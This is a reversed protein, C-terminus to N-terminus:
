DAIAMPIIRIESKDLSDEKVINKVKARCIPCSMKWEAACGLCLCMHYCEVMVMAITNDMCVVCTEGNELASKTFHLDYIGDENKETLNGILGINKYYEDGSPLLKARKKILVSFAHISLLETDNYRSQLYYNLRMADSLDPKKTQDFFVAGRLFGRIPLERIRKLPYENVAEVFDRDSIDMKHKAFKLQLTPEDDDDEESERKNKNRDRSRSRSRSRSQHSCSVGKSRRYRKRKPKTSTSGFFCGTTNNPENCGTIPGQSAGWSFGNCANVTSHNAPTSGWSFTSDNNSGWSFASGTGFGGTSAGTFGWSFKSVPKDEQVPVFYIIMDTEASKGTRENIRGEETSTDFREIGWDCEKKNKAFKLQTRRGQEIINATSGESTTIICLCKGNKYKRSPYLYVEMGYASGMDAESMLACGVSFMMGGASYKDNKNQKQETSDTSKQEEKPAEIFTRLQLGVCPECIDWGKPHKPHNNNLPCHYIVGSDGKYEECVDCKINLNHRAKPYAERPTTRQMTHGCICTIDPLCHAPEDLLPEYLSGSLKCKLGIKHLLKEQSLVQILKHNKLKEGEYNGIPLNISQTSQLAIPDKMNQPRLVYRLRRSKNQNDSTMKITVDFIFDGSSQNEHRNIDEWAVPPAYYRFEKAGNSGDSNTQKVKVNSLWQDGDKGCLYEQLDFTSEEEKAQAM